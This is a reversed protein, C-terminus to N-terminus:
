EYTLDSDQLSSFGGLVPDISSGHFVIDLKKENAVSFSGTTAVFGLVQETLYPSKTRFEIFNNWTKEEVSVHQFVDKVEVDLLNQEDSPSPLLNYTLTQCTNLKGFDLTSFLCKWRGNLLPLSEVSTPRSIPCLSELQEVLQRINSADKNEVVKHKACEDVLKVKLSKLNGGSQYSLACKLLFFHFLFAFVKISLM